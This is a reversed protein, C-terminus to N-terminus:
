KATVYRWGSVNVTGDARVTYSRVAYRDGKNARPVKYSNSQTTTIKVYKGKNPDYRYVMYGVANSPGNWKLKFYSYYEDSWLNWVAYPTYNNPTIKKLENEKAYLWAMSGNSTVIMQNSSTRGTFKKVSKPIVIAKLYNDSNSPLKYFELTKVTSPVVYAVDKKGEPYVLIKTAKKNLLVGDISTFYANDEAVMISELKYCNYFSDYVKKVSQPIRLTTLKKCSSFTGYDICDFGEPLTVETLKACNYFAYSGLKTIQEPLTVTLLGTCGSLMGDPIENVGEPIAISAIKKCGSFAYSGLQTLGAPLTVDTLNKCQSFASEGISVVTKPISIMQLRDCSYFASAGIRTMKKPLAVDELYDCYAFVQDSLEAIGSPIKMSRLGDCNYFARAGLIKLGKPLTVDTLSDCSCFADRGIEVVGKPIDISSLSDCNIFAEYKIHTIGEPLTVKTLSKCDSFLNSDIVTVGEPIVIEKLSGCRGFVRKGLKTLGKPLTIQELALCGRFSSTGIRTVSEPIKIEKLSHCECFAYNYFETISEPLVVRELASYEEFMRYGVVTFGDGLIVEKVQERYIDWPLDREVFDFEVPVPGTVDLSLVGTTINMSWAFVTPQGASVMVQYTDSVINEPAPAILPPMIDLADEPSADVFDYIPVIDEYVPETSNVADALVVFPSAATLAALFLSVVFTQYGKM